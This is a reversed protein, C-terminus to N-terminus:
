VFLWSRWICLRPERVSNGTSGSGAESSFTCIVFPVKARVGRALFFIHREKVALWDDGDYMSVLLSVHLERALFVGAILRMVCSVM